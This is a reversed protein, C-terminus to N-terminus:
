EFMEGSKKLAHIKKRLGGVTRNLKYAMMQVNGHKGVLYNKKIYEIEEPTYHTQKEM